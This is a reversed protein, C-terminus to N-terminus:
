TGKSSKLPSWGDAESWDLGLMMNTAEAGEAVSKEEDGDGKM